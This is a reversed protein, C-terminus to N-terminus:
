FFIRETPKEGKLILVVEEKETYILQCMELIERREEPPTKLWSSVTAYNGWSAKPMENVIWTTLTKLATITNAPHSRGIAGVCDNALLSTFFGGPSYGHVLYNFIPDAFSKAVDYEKFSNYLRVQSYKSLKM